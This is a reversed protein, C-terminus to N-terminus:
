LYNNTLSFLLLKTTIFIMIVIVHLTVIIIILKCVKKYRNKNTELYGHKRSRSLIKFM